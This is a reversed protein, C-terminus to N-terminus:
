PANWQTVEFNYTFAGNTVNMPADQGLHVTIVVLIYDCNHLQYGELAEINVLDAGAENSTWMEGYCYGGDANGDPLSWCLNNLYTSGPGTFVPPEDTDVVFKAPITGDYHLLFDVKFDVSPFLDTLTVTVSDADDGGDIVAVASAILEGDQPAEPQVWGHHVVIEDSPVKYVWTSSVKAIDIDVDGTTVTGSINVTDSWHAFGVGVGALAIVLVLFLVWVKTFHRM